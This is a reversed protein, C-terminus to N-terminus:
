KLLVEEPQPEARPEGKTGAELDVIGPAPRCRCGPKDPYSEFPYRRLEGCVSCPYWVVPISEM